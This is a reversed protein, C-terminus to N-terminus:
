VDIRGRFGKKGETFKCIKQIVFKKFKKLFEKWLFSSPYVKKKNSYQYKISIHDSYWHECLSPKCLNYRLELNKDQDSGYNM